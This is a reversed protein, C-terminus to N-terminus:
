VQDFARYIVRPREFGAPCPLSHMMQVRLDPRCYIRRVAPTLVMKHLMAVPPDNQENGVGLTYLLLMLLSWTELFLRLVGHFHQSKYTNSIKHCGSRSTQVVISKRSHATPQPLSVDLRPFLPFVSAGTASSPSALCTHWFFGSDGNNTRASAMHIYLGTADFNLNLCLKTGGLEQEHLM